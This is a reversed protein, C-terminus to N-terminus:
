RTRPLTHTLTNQRATRLAPFLDGDPLTWVAHLHDPLVVWADIVFPRTVLTQQVALRLQDVEDVLLNGGRRSLDVTFFISAGGYKPRLYSSM